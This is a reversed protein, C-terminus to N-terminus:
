RIIDTSASLNDLQGENFKSLQSNDIAIMGRCLCCREAGLMGKSVAKVEFGQGRDHCEGNDTGSEVCAKSM